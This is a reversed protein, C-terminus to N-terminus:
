WLAKGEYYDLVKSRLVFDYKSIILNTNTRDLNNKAILYPVSTTAGSNFLIEAARFSEQFSNVQDLLIKYKDATSTFNVYAREISQQLETKTNQEILENNKFDIKAIKVRSRVRSANFIPIALGLNFSTFKNNKLQSGYNIKKTDFNDQKTIVPVQSGNVLVYDTSPVFASNLLVSQTAVSSYNTNVDSSLSLTPYLEGRISRINKEASETRLHVAKVQAFQQLAAQYIKDPEANYSINFSELPMRELQMNKDYPINLLQALNLKATELAAQNDVITIQDNALQGKLDYYQSPPIAGSQNLINLREVQKVTVLSLSRSTELIDEASLVGLYALIVNITLNDKALQLEQQSAEHGLRNSKIKNQLSSGNFLLLSSSASYSAYNVNQNIFGNTFPDISRGNNTGHNAFGNLNPLMTARSQKLIVDERQMQLDSQNVLLNNKIGTEIAEKLTLKNQAHALITFLLFIIISFITKM